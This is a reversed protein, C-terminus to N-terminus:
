EKVVFNQECLRTGVAKVSIEKEKNKGSRTKKLKRVQDQISDELDLDINTCIIFDELNSFEPKKKIRLYSVFYKELNFEGKKEKTLLDGVTIKTSEDQKHKAQLFRWVEEKGTGDAKDKEYQFVLDDFKEAADMETALRFSYGKDLGRKLFLMLLKLQYINGHLTHKLGSASYENPKDLISIKSRGGQVANDENGNSHARKRSSTEQDIGIPQHDPSSVRPKKPSSDEPTNEDFDTRTRKLPNSLSNLHAELINAIEQGNHTGSRKAVDLPTRDRKNKINDDNIKAGKEILLEVVKREEKRVAIHLSTDKDANQFNVNLKPKKEFLKTIKKLKEEESDRSKVASILEEEPTVEDDYDTSDPSRTNIQHHQSSDIPQNGPNSQYNDPLSQKSQQATSRTRTKDLIPEFHNTGRNIIHITNVDNYDVDDVSRSVSGDVVQSSWGAHLLKEIIHLKVNYENCILQGEIDPRGWIPTQLASGYKLSTLSRYLDSNEIRMREMDESTYEISALYTNWLEDDSISSDPPVMTPDHSSRVDRIVKAKLQQNGVALQKCVQRISKVTFEMNPKLQKLGQAVSDFFCDEGGIASKIEFNDPLSPNDVSRKFRPRQKWDKWEIHQKTELPGIVESNVWKKKFYDTPHQTKLM